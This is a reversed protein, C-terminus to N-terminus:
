PERRKKWESRAITYVGYGIGAWAIWKILPSAILILVCITILVAGDLTTREALRAQIWAWVALLDDRNM